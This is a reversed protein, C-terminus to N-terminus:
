RAGGIALGFASVYDELNDGDALTFSRAARAQAALDPRAVRLRILDALTTDFAPFAVSRGILAVRDVRVSPRSSAFYTLTDRVGALLDWTAAYVAEVVPRHDVPLNEPSIGYRETVQEAQLLTVGLRKAVNARIDDGGIPLMRVFQPVGQETVVLTTTSGGVSVILVTDSAIGVPELARATAFPLLDVAVPTLKATTIAEVLTRVADKSAAVLVGRVTPGEETIEEASPYFDLLAETVPLPILEQVTFPLTERIRALPAFPLSIDRAFVKAGGIGTAVRKTGFKSSSWLARLSESVTRVELVEGGHVAGEPLPVRSARVIQPAKTPNAVEVANIWRSGIDVGVINGGM